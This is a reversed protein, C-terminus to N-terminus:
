RIAQKEEKDHRYVLRILLLSNCTKEVIEQLISVLSQGQKEKKM